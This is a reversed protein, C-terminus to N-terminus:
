REALADALGLVFDRGERPGNELKAVWEVPLGTEGLGAGLLAGTMAGITDADGGFGVADLLAERAPVDRLGCWLAIPVSDLALVGNGLAEIM